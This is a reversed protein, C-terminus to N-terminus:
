KMLLPMGKGGQPWSHASVVSHHLTRHGCTAGGAAVVVSAVSCLASAGCMPGRIPLSCRKESRNKDFFFGGYGGHLGSPVVANLNCNVASGAGVAAEHLNPSLVAEGAVFVLHSRRHHFICLLFFFEVNPCSWILFSPRAPDPEDLVARVQDPFCHGRVSHWLRRRCFTCSCNLTSLSSSFTTEYWLQFPPDALGRTDDESALAVERRSPSSM